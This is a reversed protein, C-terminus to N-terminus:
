DNVATARLSEIAGAVDTGARLLSQVSAEPVRIGRGIRIAGVLLGDHYLRYITMKSVRCRHAIEEITLFQPAPLAPRASAPRPQATLPHYTM